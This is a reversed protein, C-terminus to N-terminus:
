TESQDNKLHNRFIHSNNRSDHIVKQNWLISMLKKYFNTKFSNKEIYILLTFQFSSTHNAKIAVLSRPRYKIIKIKLM